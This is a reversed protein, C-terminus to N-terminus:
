LKNGEGTLVPHMGKDEAYTYSDTVFDEWATADAFSVTDPTYASSFGEQYKPLYIALGHVSHWSMEHREYIVAQSIADTVTRAYSQIALVNTENYAILDQALDKLGNIVADIKNLDIATMACATHADSLYYNDVIITALESADIDSTEILRKLITNYPWGSVPEPLESAVMISAYQHVEYAVEITSMLCADFGLLDIPRGNFKYIESLANRMEMLNMNDNDSTHDWCSGSWGKGHSSIIVAYREAPFNSITWEVFSVLTSPDGMNVEGIDMVENGDAPTIDKTVLFRRCDTWNDYSHDDGSIRDLQVVVNVSDNTGIDAMEMFDDLAAEELRDDDAAMYVMFTWKASDNGNNNTYVSESEANENEEPITAMPLATITSLGDNEPFRTAESPYVAVSIATILLIWGILVLVSVSSNITHARKGANM